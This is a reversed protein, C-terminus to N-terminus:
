EVEFPLSLQFGREETGIRYIEIASRRNAQSRHLYGDIVMQFQEETGYDLDIRGPTVQGSASDLIPVAVLRGTRISDEPRRGKARKRIFNEAQQQNPRVWERIKEISVDDRFYYSVSEVIRDTVESKRTVGTLDIGDIVEVIEAILSM